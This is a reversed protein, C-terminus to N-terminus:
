GRKLSEKAAKFSTEAVQRHKELENTNMGKVKCKEIMMLELEHCVEYCVALDIQNNEAYDTIIPTIYGLFKNRDERDKDSQNM